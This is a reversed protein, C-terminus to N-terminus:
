RYSYSMKRLIVPHNVTAIRLVNKGAVTKVPISLSEEELFDDWVVEQNFEVTILPAEDASMRRFYLDMRIDGGEFPLQWSHYKHKVIILDAFSKEKSVVASEIMDDIYLIEENKNTNRYFQRIPLLIEINRDDRELSRQFYDAAEETMGMKQYADGVIYLSKASFAPAHMKNAADIIDQYRGQKHYLFLLVSTDSVKHKALTSELDRLANRDDENELYVMLYERADEIGGGSELVSRAM